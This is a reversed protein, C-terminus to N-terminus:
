VSGGSMGAASQWAGLQFDHLGLGFQCIVDGPPQGALSLQRPDMNYVMSSLQLRGAKM